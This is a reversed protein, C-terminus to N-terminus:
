TFILHLLVNFNNGSLYFNHLGADQAEIVALDVLIGALDAEEGGGDAFEAVRGENGFGLM